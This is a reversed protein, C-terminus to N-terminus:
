GIAGTSPGGRGPKARRSSGGTDEAMGRTRIRGGLETPRVRCRSSPPAVLTSVSHLSRPRRRPPSRPSRPRGPRSWGRAAGSGLASGTARDGLRAVRGRAGAGDRTPTGSRRVRREGLGDGVGSGVAVGTGVGIRTGAGSVPRITLGATAARCGMATMISSRRAARGCDPSDSPTPRRAPVPRLRSGASCPWRGPALQGLEDAGDPARAQVVDGPGRLPPRDVEVGTPRRLRERRQPRLAAALVDVVALGEAVAVREVAERRSGGRVVQVRGPRLQAAEALLEPGLVLCVLRGPVERRVGRELRPGYPPM